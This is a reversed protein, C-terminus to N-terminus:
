IKKEKMKFKANTVDEVEIINLHERVNFLSWHTNASVIEVAGSPLTICIQLPLIAQVKAQLPVWSNNNKLQSEYSFCIYLTMCAKVYRFSVISEIVNCIFTM